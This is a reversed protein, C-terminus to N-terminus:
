DLVANPGDVIIHSGILTAFHALQAHVLDKVDVGWWQNRDLLDQNSALAKIRESFSDRFDELSRTATQNAIAHVVSLMNKARHVIERMLLQEREVREGCTAKTKERLPV